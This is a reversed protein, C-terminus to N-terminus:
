FKKSYVIKWNLVDKEEKITGKKNLIVMLQNFKIVNPLEIEKRVKEKESVLMNNKYILSLHPNFDYINYVSFKEKFKEYVEILEKTKEFQIFLTKTFIESYDIRLPKLSIPKLFSSIEETKKVVTEVSVNVTGLWYITVHPIFSFVQYKKALDDIVKQWKKREKEEPILWFSFDFNSM